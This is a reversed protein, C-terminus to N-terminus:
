RLNNANNNLSFPNIEGTKPLIEPQKENMEKQELAILFGFLFLIAGIIVFLFDEFVGGLVFLVLGIFMLSCFLIVM